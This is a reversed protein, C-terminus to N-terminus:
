GPGGPSWTATFSQGTRAHDLPEQLFLRLEAVVQALPEFDRRRNRTAFAKWNALASTDQVFRESLGVIQEPLATGRRQFTTRLAAVLPDKIFDIHDVEVPSIAANISARLRTFSRKADKSASATWTGWPTSKSKRM